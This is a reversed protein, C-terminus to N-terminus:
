SLGKDGGEEVYICPGSRKSARIASPNMNTTARRSPYPPGKARRERGGERPGGRGRECVCTRGGEDKTPLISGEGETGDKRSERLKVTDKRKDKV